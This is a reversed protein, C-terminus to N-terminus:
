KIRFQKLKISVRQNQKKSTNIIRPKSKIGRGGEMTDKSKGRGNRSIASIKVTYRGMRSHRWIRHWEDEDDNPLTYHIGNVSIATGFKPSSSM